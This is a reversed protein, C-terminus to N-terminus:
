DTFFVEGNIIANFRVGQSVIEFNLLNVFYDSAEVDKIFSIINTYNGTVNMELRIFGPKGDKPAIEEGFKSGFSLGRVRAFDNLDRSVAFLSDRKPLVSNLKLFASEAIKEQEKLKGLNTIGVVRSFLKARTEHIVNAKSSIDFGLYFVAIAITSIIGLAFSLNSVLRFKFSRQM